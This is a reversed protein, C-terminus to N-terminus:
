LAPATRVACLDHVRVEVRAARRHVRLRPDEGRGLAICHERRRHSRAEGYSRRPTAMSVYYREPGIRNGNEPSSALPPLAPTRRPYGEPVPKPPEVTPTCQVIVGDPRRRKTSAWRTASPGAIFRIAVALPITKRKQRARRAGIPPQGGV